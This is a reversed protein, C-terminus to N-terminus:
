KAKKEPDPKDPEILQLNDGPVGSFEIVDGVYVLRDDIYSKKLVLYKAM